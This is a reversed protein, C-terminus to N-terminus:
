LDDSKATEEDRPHLWADLALAALLIVGRIVVSTVVSTNLLTMMNVFVTIFATGAFVGFMNGRGGTLSVGGVVAATIANFMLAESSGEKSYGGTVGLQLLGVLVALLAAIVFTGVILHRVPVGTLRAAAPSDGIARILQGFSSYKMLAWAGVLVLAALITPVTGAGLASVLSSDRPLAYYQEELLTVNFIGEFLKWTGLTVFLAPIEVYAVLWGNILGVALAVACAALIAQWESFGHRNWLDVTAMGAIGVVAVVSLDVNKTMIVIASAVALIALPSALRAMTAFNDVTFFGDIFVAGFAIMALTIAGILLGQDVVALRERIGRARPPAPEAQTPAAQSM